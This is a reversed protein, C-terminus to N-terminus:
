PRIKVNQCLPGPPIESEEHINYCLIDAAQLVPYTLLGVTGDHKQRAAKAKWQHLHQLRPLRVMCTLIWSLQTHESVQPAPAAAPGKHLARILSWCERAKRVSYLAM